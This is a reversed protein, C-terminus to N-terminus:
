EIDPELNEPVEELQEPNQVLYKFLKFASAYYYGDVIREDTVIKMKIYRKDIINNNRDMVKERFKMGFAVFISTTGIDYLHHYVPDIGISGLDTVFVSTHFPSLENIFRPMLGFYDLSRLVFVAFKVLLGPCLMIINAFNDTKNSTDTKKNEIVQREIKEAVDYITDTPEFKFKITTEPSDFSKEKKIALSFLIENRAYINYGAVFRNLAPRLAITRVMAAILIHLMSLRIGSQKRKRRIFAETRSIEIKDEFFNQSDSRKRMVFPIIRYFPDLTRLRRGDYRDGFRKKYKKM